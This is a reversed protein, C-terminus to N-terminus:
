KKGNKRERKEIEKKEEETEIWEERGKDRNTEREDGATKTGTERRKAM